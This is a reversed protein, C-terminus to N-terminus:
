KAARRDDQAAAIDGKLQKEEAEGAEIDATVAPVKTEADSISKSLAEDGHKCYCMFKEFLEKETEGEATVKKQMSQLLTVVKRIPNAVVEQRAVAANSACLALLFTLMM